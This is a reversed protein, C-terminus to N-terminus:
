KLHREYNGGRINFMENLDIGLSIVSLYVGKFKSEMVPAPKEALFVTAAHKLIHSREKDEPDIFRKLLRARDRVDYSTDYRALTLVYRSLPLTKPQTISLKVALTLLQLKVLEDQLKFNNILFSLGDKVM